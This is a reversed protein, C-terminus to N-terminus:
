SDWPVTSSRRHRRRVLAVLLVVGGGAVGYLIVNRSAVADPSRRTAADYRVVVAGDCIVQAFRFNTGVIGYTWVELSRGPSACRFVEGAPFSSAVTAGGLPIQNGSLCAVYNNQSGTLRVGDTRNCRLHTMQDLPPVFPWPNLLAFLLPVAIILVAATIGCGYPASKATPLAGPTM